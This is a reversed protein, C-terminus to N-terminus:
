FWGFKFTMGFNMGRLADVPVTFQEKGDLSYYDLHLDSTYRYSANLALRFFKVINMEIDIGPEFVFYPYTTYNHYYPDYNYNDYSEAVAAGGAGILIPLAIHVPSNPAIIPEIFLGGYGGGLAYNEKTPQSHYDGSMNNYFGYGALGITFHHDILWGGRGGSLIADKGDIQTYGITFAGYGGHDVKGSKNGFLTQMKPEEVKPKEEVPKGLSVQEQALGQFTIACIFLASFIIHKKM